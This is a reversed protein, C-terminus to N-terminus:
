REGTPQSAVQSNHSEGALLARKRAAGWRYGGVAGRGVARHCPIALAVPNAACASGVARAARPVGVADAIEGYTRTEGPPIDRLAQWVRLQFATAALDLPLEVSVARGELYGAVLASWPALAETDAAVTARPFERRLEAVLASSRDGFRLACFGVDTAALMLWGGPIPSCHYRITLAAGGRVYRGPTMGLLASAREYIRSSSGFGAEFTADVVADGARAARRFRAARAAAAYQAPSVGLVTAFDRQLRRANCGGARALAAVTTAPEDVIHTCAARVRMVADNPADEAATPRCRLCARFGANVADATDDFFRVRDRRPRRSPCTPRCYIGTSTVAYFFPARRRSLVATWREDDRDSGSARSTVPTVPTVPAMDAPTARASHLATM